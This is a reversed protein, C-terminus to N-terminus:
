QFSADDFSLQNRINQFVSWHNRHNGFYEFGISNQHHMTETFFNDGYGGVLSLEKNIIIEDAFVIINIFLILLFTIKKM